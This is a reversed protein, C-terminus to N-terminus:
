HLSNKLTAIIKESLLELNSDKSLFDYDATSSLYGLELIVAPVKNSRLVLADSKEIGGVSIGKIGQLANLLHVGVTQSRKFTNNKENVICGIGSKGTDHEDYNIHISLFFDAKSDNSLSARDALTMSEDGTRTMIVTVGQKMGAAQMKKAISLTLEKETIGTKTKAGADQGGHGADIVIVLEKGNNIASNSLAADPVTSFSILLICIVPILLLYLTSHLLSTKTKTIMTIRQKITNSYFQNILSINNEFHIQELLCRLYDETEVDNLPITDALYEHQTKLSRKYFMLLPNFWLAIHALQIIILDVWHYQEIHIKEHRIILPNVKRNPLFIFNFFSFAQNTEGVLIKIGDLIEAASSKKIKNIQMISNVLKIFMFIVGCFYTAITVLVYDITKVSSTMVENTGYDHNTLGGSERVINSSLVEHIPGSWPISLAPIIFSLILGGLLYIRNVTFFTTNRFCLLYLLYFIGTCVSVKLLYTIMTIM